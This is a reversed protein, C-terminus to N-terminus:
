QAGGDVIASLQSLISGSLYNKLITFDNGTCSQNPEANRYLEETFHVTESPTPKSSFSCGTGFNINIQESSENSIDFGEFVCNSFNM